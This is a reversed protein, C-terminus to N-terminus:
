KSAPLVEVWSGPLHASITNDYMAECKVSPMYFRGMYTALLMVRFTKSQGSGMEFYTYVRDDRVDQYDFPSSAATTEALESNRANIIEWGSPFVQSLALQKYEGRLGPNTVTVEAIFTTGQVLASPSLTEGKLGKFVMKMTLSNSGTTSDGRAPVGRMIFRAFLINKGNNSVQLRGKKNSKTELTYKMVPKTGNFELQEGNNIRCTAQIGTGSTNGTFKEIALLLFATTQTSHWEQNCLSASIEKVLPAAKTKMNLLCLAEVIMAKDRMESGYSHSLERYPKVSTPASNVLNMAVENKGALQYAAALRWKAAVSLNKQELLKNMAGLEPAKALALTYLRYAQILDDNYYSSNYSWSVAKQRQFEKWGALFHIPMAYGKQEAELLFHGAYCTGWDDAYQAGPWYGLGGNQLQFSKIRLIASKINAETKTKEEMSLDALDALYLQPFVSSTTQEICGYPYHILFGLRKELNLPPISSLELVATNTGPLGPLLFDEGWNGGPQITKEIVTTVPLNPNRVDMEVEYEGREKGSTALIKVKALGVREKAKLHFLVVQDGMASFKLTKTTGTTIAFLDNTTITVLVEKITKDLAFVTVPLVLSEGPGAVRPLTGMVMLPKKVVVTKESNGYAGENGAVVMVRVSGIYPPMTFTTTRSAGKKLEFPGFFRVMPKFRNAKLNGKGDLSQDGGISLIRQLEGSYAGIVQDYLDWTKVGLAEKAYFASWADPTKFRTLDLLGDDVVALTYTMPKGESEKVTIKAVQGPALENQMTIVPKLHTAPNEVLIPIVGYLRIPLDNKTQAHPQILTISAYCNPAMSEEAKLTITTSGKETPAWFSSIVRTGNEISVLARGEPSTPLILKITEGVKYKEKDSTFTLMSAAQKEGGPMRFYGPWDVYIVKGAAHGSSKDTVRILYRGWEDHGAQFQYVAKGNVTALTTSDVPRLHSTSVFDASGPDSDDWWWRWYLKFVEVKFRNGSVLNGNADVNVLNIPYSKDTYLVRDGSAAQPVSLGAYSRYPYFPISFRDVSFDGGDEFVKTEFTAKLAGPAVNTLHIKPTVLVKGEPGLKGDFISINEAAFGASPNDFVYGPFKQFSTQSKTLTLDVKAKLNRATAGTLWAAELMVPPIKDTILRDTKFDINIKLRNPKVTEIKLSKQFDVGGVTVKALWNGTPAEPSTAVSFSYFGNLSNTRVLRMVLQGSPNILSFSVPHHVPLQKAKDELIFSLYISDGPRWVGREGYIFGKIGKQVTEGNVEFMSLSLSNGDSLKLYGTQKEKKVVVVFPKTKVPLQVIGDEDTAGKVIPQLQYNFLEVSAGKIPDSSVIDTVIIRYAGDNGAKAIIGLDSALINKRVAKNFFYSAKCPENREEWNYNRWGGNEYDDESYNGYYSWGGENEKEPNDLYTMGTGKTENNSTEGCPFVSFEKKYRIYISYIAGPEAKILTSLDISFRNWKGYNAVGNLPMTKKVVVRGVRMLQETEQLENVQLFQLINSEFIRIVKIEVAKLNVAEFPVLMGNSSPLLVGDGVFRVGPALNDLKIMEVVKQGLEQRNINRVTPEITLKGQYDASSLEENLYIKLENEEVTYRLNSFNGYRILGDLNQDPSLPDTFQAIICRESQMPVRSGVYHFDGLSPIEVKQEGKNDADISEGNWSVLVQGPYNVRVISDVQFTHKRQAPEHTWTVPLQKGGQTVTLIKEVEADVAVDATHLTGYLKERTLDNSRYAKHNTITVEFDQKMTQFQFTMVKLSDPVKVLKSLQFDVTYIRDQPLPEDPKFELTRTDVWYSKGNISPSIKFYNEELPVNLSLSDVFDDALRVRISSATSVIGSTFAQVYERYAPRVSLLAKKDRKCSTNCLM